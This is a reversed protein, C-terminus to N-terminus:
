EEGAELFLSDLFSDVIRSVHCSDVDGLVNFREVIRPTTVAMDANTRIVIFGSRFTTLRAEM